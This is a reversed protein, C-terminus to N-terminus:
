ESYEDEKLSPFRIYFVAGGEPADDVGVTAGHADAIRRVVGLGQRPSGRRDARLHHTFASGKQEEPVGPGRDIVYIAPSETVKITVTTGADSHEIANEVLNRVAQELAETRGWVFTPVDVGTVEILRNRRIALPAVYTAVSKAIERLDARETTVIKLHTIRSETLLEEVIRSVADVDRKLSGVEESPGLNDLRARLVALPTRLEHAVDAAFEQQRRVSEQLSREMQKRETIDFSFTATSGDPLREENVLYHTGDEWRVEFPRGPERHRRMREAIWEEEAGIADTIQGSHALATILESFPTGLAAKNGVVDNYRRAQRNIVILRDDKDSLIFSEAMEEVASGLRDSALEARTKETIDRAIGRVGTFQGTEYSFVPLGSVLLQRVDGSATQVEFPADRFPKQFNPVAGGRTATFTGIEDLRMGIVQDPPIGCSDFLRDSIFSLRLDAGLSWVWDSTLRTIDDLMEVTEALRASIDKASSFWHSLREENM